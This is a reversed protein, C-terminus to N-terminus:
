YWGDGAPNLITEILVRRVTEQRRQADSDFPIVVYNVRGGETYYFNHYALYHKGGYLQGVTSQIGPPLYIVFIEDERPSGSEKVLIADLYARIQMDTVKNELGFDIPEDQRSAPFSLNKIGTGGLLSLERNDIAVPTQIVAIKDADEWAAGLFIHRLRPDAIVRGGHNMLQDPKKNGREILFVRGGDDDRFGEEQQLSLTSISPQNEEDPLSSADAALDVAAAAPVTVNLAFDDVVFSTQIQSGETGILYIQIAQGIYASLNFTVNRFGTNPNLNSYTALTSLVTGSSNRVQVQLTDYATTTTTEDTDIHLWFSLTASTASAPITVSQRLTDTHASGYGDLWAKWSGSHAAESTSNDIIGATATWPTSSSGNEFGPNGLLQQTLVGGSTSITLPITVTHTTGGGTGTVIVNYRGAATSSGATIILSSSGAGPAAITTPSFRASAGSPLGSASLAIASNFSGTIATSITATGTGGPAVSLSSPAAAITFNSTPNFIIDIVPHLEIGNPAVGTQGHFFDFMGVGMVQVPTNTTKFSSTATFRADFQARAHSIGSAFPSSSGVCSPAPIETIMTHGAGDDLVLHYDSDDELKYETLTANIVWLTTESTAVRSNSPIPSPASLSTLHTISTATPANLNVVRADPDTGTKVSWREVGCQSFASSQLVCTLVLTALLAPLFPTIRKM